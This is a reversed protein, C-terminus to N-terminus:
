IRVERFPFYLTRSLEPIAGNSERNEFMQAIHHLMGQRILSPVDSANDGYGAAYTITLTDGTPANFLQLVGRPNILRYRAADLTQQSQGLSSTAVTQISIVPGKPLVITSPMDGEVRLRHSQTNLSRGTYTEAGERAVKILSTILADENTTDVRLFLKTETLSLPELAPATIREVSKLPTDTM